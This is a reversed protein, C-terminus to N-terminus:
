CAHNIGAGPYRLIAGITDLAVVAVNVLTHEVSVIWLNYVPSM